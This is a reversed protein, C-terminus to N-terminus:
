DGKCVGNAIKTFVQKSTCFEAKSDYYVCGRCYTKKTKVVKDSENMIKIKNQMDMVASLYGDDFERYSKSIIEKRKEELWSLLKEM